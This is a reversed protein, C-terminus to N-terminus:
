NRIHYMTLDKRPSFLRGRLQQVNYKQLYLHDAKIMDKDIRKLNIAQEQMEDILANNREMESILTNPTRMIARRIASGKEISRVVKRAYGGYADKPKSLYVKMKEKSQELREKSLSLHKFRKSLIQKDQIM